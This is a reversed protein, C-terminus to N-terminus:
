GSSKRGLSLNTKKLAVRVTEYSISDFGIQELKVLEDALLRLTWRKHGAPPDSCALAVLHAEARGDLKRECDRRHKRHNLAAELGEEACRKRIRGVTATGVGLAQSTAADTWDEAAKLLIRARTLKRAREQGSSIMNGLCEREEASLNVIHRKHAM